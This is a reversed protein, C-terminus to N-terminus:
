RKIKEDDECGTQQEQWKKGMKLLFHTSWM